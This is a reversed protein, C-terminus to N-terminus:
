PPFMEERYGDLMEDLARLGDSDGQPVALRLLAGPTRALLGELAAAPGHKRRVHELVPQVWPSPAGASCEGSADRVGGCLPYRDGPPAGPRPAFIGGRLNFRVREREPAEPRERLVAGVAAGAIWGDLARGKVSVFARRVMERAVLHELEGPDPAGRDKRGLKRPSFHAIGDCAEFQEWGKWAHTWTHEPVPLDTVLHLPRTELQLQQGTFDSWRERGEGVGREVARLAGVDCSGHLEVPFPVKWLAMKVACRVQYAVAVLVALAIVGGAVAVRRM